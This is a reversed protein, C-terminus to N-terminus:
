ARKRRRMERLMAQVARTQLDYPVFKWLWLLDLRPLLTSKAREVYQGEVLVRVLLSGDRRVTWLERVGLRRYIEHKELVGRSVEVEIALDPVKKKAEGVIYCEDPEAGARKRGRKLTWSGYAELTVGREIAWAELLRALLSKRYEHLSGPSMLEIVGDLFYMRPGATDGRIALLREFDRWTGRLFVHQDRADDADDVQASIAYM